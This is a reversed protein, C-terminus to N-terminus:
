YIRSYGRRSNPHTHNETNKKRREEKQKKAKSKHTAIKDDIRTRESQEKFVHSLEATFSPVGVYVRM